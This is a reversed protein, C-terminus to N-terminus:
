KNIRRSEFCKKVIDPNRMPNDDGYMPKNNKNGIMSPRPKGSLAESIKQKIEPKKAPNTKGFMYDRRGKDISDQTNEPSTGMWLHEPNVCLTIDCSHCICMEDDIPGNFLEYSFRHAKKRNSFAYIIGYGYKDVDGNWEWCGSTKIDINEYFIIKM